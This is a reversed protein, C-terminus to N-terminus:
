VDTYHTHMPPHRDTYTHVHTGVPTHENAQTHTQTGTHTNIKGAKEARRHDRSLLTPPSIDGM